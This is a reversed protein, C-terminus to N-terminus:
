AGTAALLDRNHIRLALTALALLPTPIASADASAVLDGLVPEVETPHGAMLDRSLSSTASSGEATLTKEAAALAATSVPHGAAAATAAAEDLISRSFTAGGPIAVIEGVTARMLSTAAGISAIEVWKRWMADVIDNPTTVQAGVAQFRAAIDEVRQSSPSALEGIEVGFLPALVRIAWRRRARDRGAVSGRARRKWVAVGVARRSAYRQPVSRRGNVPGGAALGDAIEIRDDQTLYRSNIPKDIFTVSGADIFWVSGCSLSVGVRQSAAMGSAGDRILEFYRRKTDSPVKNWARYPM